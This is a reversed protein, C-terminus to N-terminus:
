IYSIDVDNYFTLAMSRPIPTATLSLIDVAGKSELLKRENVGFKHQEDIVALTLCKYRVDRSILSQTGIVCQIEGSQLRKLVTKRNADSISSTLLACTIGFKKALDNFKIYHQRALIETPVM